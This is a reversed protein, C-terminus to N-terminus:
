PQFDSAADLPQSKGQAYLLPFASLTFHFPHLFPPLIHCDTLTLLNQHLTQFKTFLFCPSLSNRLFCGFLTTQCISDWFVEAMTGSVSYFSLPFRSQLQALLRICLGGHSAVPYSYFDAMLYLPQTLQGHLCAFITNPNGDGNFCSVTAQVQLGKYGQNPNAQPHHLGAFVSPDSAM